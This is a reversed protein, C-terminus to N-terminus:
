KATKSGRLSVMKVSLFCWAKERAHRLSLWLLFHPRKGPFPTFSCPTLVLIKKEGKRPSFFFTCLHMKVNKKKEKSSLSNNIFLLAPLSANGESELNEPLSFGVPVMEEIFNRVTSGWDRRM